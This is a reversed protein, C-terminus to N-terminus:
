DVIGLTDEIARFDDFANRQENQLDEAFKRIAERTFRTHTGVKTSPVKGEAALKLLTPRSMGLTKAAEVSTLVLPPQSLTIPQGSSALNLVIRLLRVLGAPLQVALGDKTEIKIRLDKPHVDKFKLVVAQAESIETATLDITNLERAARM